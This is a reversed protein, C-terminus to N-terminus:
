VSSFLGQASVAAMGESFRDAAAFRLRHADLVAVAPLSPATVAPEAQSWLMLNGEADIFGCKEATMVLAAGAQLSFAYEFCLPTVLNGARDIYGMQGQRVPALGESFAGASDYAPAIAIQGREDIYGWLNGVRVAALGESFRQLEDCVLSVSRNGERDICEWVKGQHVM